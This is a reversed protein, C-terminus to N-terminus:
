SMDKLYDDGSEQIGNKFFALVDSAVASGTEAHAYLANKISLIQGGTLGSFSVNYKNVSTDKTRKFSVKRSM